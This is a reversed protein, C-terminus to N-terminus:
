RHYGLGNAATGTGLQKEEEEESRVQAHEGLDEKLRKATPQEVPSEPRELRKGEGGSGEQEKEDRANGGAGEEDGNDDERLEGEEEEDEDVVEGEEM